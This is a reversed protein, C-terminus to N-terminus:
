IKGSVLNGYQFVFLRWKLSASKKKERVLSVSESFTGTPIHTIMGIIDTFVARNLRKGIESPSLVVEELSTRLDQVLDQAIVGEVDGNPIEAIESVKRQFTTIHESKRLSKMASFMKDLDVVDRENKFAYLTLIPLRHAQFVKQMIELKENASPQVTNEAVIKLIKLETPSCNLKANFSRSLHVAIDMSHLVPILDPYDGAFPGAIGYLTSLLDRDGSSTIVSLCHKAREHGIEAFEELRERGIVKAGLCQAMDRKLGESLGLDQTPPLYTEEFLLSYPLLENLLRLITRDADHQLMEKVASKLEPLGSVEIIGGRAFWSYIGSWFHNGLVVRSKTKSLM